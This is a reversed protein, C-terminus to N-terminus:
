RSPIQMAAQAFEANVHDAYPHRKNIIGGGILIDQL